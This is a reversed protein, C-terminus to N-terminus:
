SMRIQYDGNQTIYRIWPLAQYGCSETIRLHKVSIGSVTFYPIEFSVKVPNKAFANRNDDSVSPLGFSASLVFEKEGQFEKIAWIIADRDPVYKGSGITTKFNPDKVDPPVPVHFEVNNAITKSKFQSVARVTFEIRTTSKNNVMIDCWFLPKVPCNLRYTMLEFEGDPPIFSITRDSEFKELQVCQHFKVDELEVTKMQPNRNFGAGGFAALDRGAAMDFVTKDNFGLYLQPMGSLYSKMKLCGRIESRLVAGSASVVIDLSEVVDLFIENKKHKIGERRWSVANTMATPPKVADITMQHYRNRICERLVSVETAQPYGNDLMEDLLEYIIVFNERIRDEMLNKFYGELVKVFRYLFSLVMTVNYNASAAALFYMDSHLIWCFTSGDCHYVPRVANPEQLLVNNYFSEPINALVDDKYTRNIMMRGKNDLIYIGSIGGM